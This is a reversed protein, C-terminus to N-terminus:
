KAEDRLDNATLSGVTKFGDGRFASVSVPNNLNLVYTNNGTADSPVFKLSKVATIKPSNPEQNGFIYGKPLDLAAIEVGYADGVKWDIGNKDKFRRGWRYNNGNGYAADSFKKNDEPGKKYESCFERVHLGSAIMREDDFKVAEVYNNMLSSCKDIGQAVKDLDRMNYFRVGSDIASGAIPYSQDWDAFEDVLIDGDIYSIRGAMKIVIASGSSTAKVEEASVSGTQVQNQHNYFLVATPVQDILCAQMALRILSRTDDLAARDSMGRVAAFYGTVSITGLLAMLGIVVLLEVLTFAARGAPRESAYANM